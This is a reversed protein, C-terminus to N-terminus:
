SGESSLQNSMNRCGCTTHDPLHTDVRLSGMLLSFCSTLMEACLLHVFYSNSDSAKALERMMLPFKFPLWLSYHQHVCLCVCAHVCMCVCVCVRTCLTAIRAICHLCVNRSDEYPLCSQNCLPYAIVHVKLLIGWVINM